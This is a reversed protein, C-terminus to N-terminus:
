NSRLQASSSYGTISVLIRLRDTQCGQRDGGLASLRIGAISIQPSERNIAQNHTMLRSPERTSTAAFTFHDVTTRCQAPQAVLDLRVVPVAAFRDDGNQAIEAPELALVLFSVGFGRLKKGARHLVIV